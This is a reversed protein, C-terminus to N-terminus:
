AGSCLVSKHPQLQSPGLAVIFLVYLLNGVDLYGM